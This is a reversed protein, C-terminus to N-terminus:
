REKNREEDVKAKALRQLDVAMDLAKSMRQSANGDCFPMLFTALMSLHESQM